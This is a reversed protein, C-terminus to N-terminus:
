NNKYDELGSNWEGTRESHGCNKNYIDFFDKASIDIRELPLEKADFRKEYITPIDDDVTVIASYEINYFTSTVSRIFWYENDKIKYFNGVLNNKLENHIYKARLVMIEDDRKLLMNYTEELEAELYKKTKEM